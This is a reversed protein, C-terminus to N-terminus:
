ATWPVTVVSASAFALPSAPSSPVVVRVRAGNDYGTNFGRAALSCCSNSACNDCCCAGTGARATEAEDDEDAAAAVVVDDVMAGADEDEEEEDAGDVESVGAVM